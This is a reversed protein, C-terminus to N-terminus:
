NPGSADAENRGAARWLRIAGEQDSSVLTQGDPAFRLAEPLTMHGRLTAREEGTAVEWLKLLTDLGASALTRGDPSFALDKVSDNHGILTHELTWTGAQWIKISYNEGGSAVLRGNPSFAVPCFTYAAADISKLLTGSSADWIRLTNDQCRTVLIHGSPSFALSCIHDNHGRLRLRPTATGVEWLIVTNGREGAALTREDPSWAMAQIMSTHGRLPIRRSSDSEWLEIEGNQAGVALWRGSPSYAVAQTEQKSLVSRTELLTGKRLDWFRVTGDFSGSALTRGNPHIDLAWVEHTHSRLVDAERFASVDCFSVVADAGGTVLRTGDPVFTVRNVRGSNGRRIGQVKGDTADWLRTTGDDGVSAISAGSPAFAVDRVPGTHGVLTKFLTGDSVTWLNVTLDESGTALMAGDASFTVKGIRGLHGAFSRVLSGDDIDWLKATHDSHCAAALFRGDPSFAVKGFRASHDNVTFVQLPEGSEVNWLRVTGDWSGSALLEGNRSFAVGWIIDTHGTLTRQLSGTEMDWLLVTEDGASALMKERPSFALSKVRNPHGNLTYRNKMTPVHWVTITYGDTGVALLQGDLSLALSTIGADHKLATANLSAQCQRWLYFWEFRRLDEQNDASRHRNLVEVVRGVDGDDWAKMAAHMDSLYQQWRAKRAAAQSRVSSYTTVAAVILLLVGIAASLGAIRQNRRCWRWTREARSVPRGHIPEGRLFRGLDSALDQATTYRRAPDKELCKIAITELDRPINRNITRLSRPDDHVIQHLLNAPNGRFPVEGTLLEYLIVGLSYIDSRRDATHSEGRAQEPSMYAPTGLFQGDVTVTTERTQRRALGFDTLYPEGAGDLLVNAPKLDRHVIGAAHAHELALAIKQCLRAAESASMRESALWEALSVGEVLDSVLYVRDGDRGVEHVSVINPHRLQAAARAERLFQEAEGPGLQGRRPLKIAVLRDLEKDGAKWVAGFGGAGIQELLEFHGVRTLVPAGTAEDDRGVLSFQGGCSSCSVNQLDGDVAIEAPTHCEPCRIRLVAVAPPSPVSPPSDDPQEALQSAAHIRRLEALETALEPMLEPHAREISDDPFTEGASLRRLCDMAVDRLTAEREHDTDTATPIAM